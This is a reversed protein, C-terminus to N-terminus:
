ELLGELPVHMNMCFNHVCFAFLRVLESWKSANCIGTAQALQPCWARCLMPLIEFCFKLCVSGVM